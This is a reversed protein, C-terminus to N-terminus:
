FQAEEVKVGDEWTQIMLKTYTASGADSDNFKYFGTADVSAKRTHSNTEKTGDPKTEVIEYSIKYYCDYFGFTSLKVNRNDCCPCRIFKMIDLLNFTGFRLRHYGRYRFPRTECYPSTCKVELTLGRCVARWNPLKEDSFSEKKMSSMDTTIIGGGGGRLRCVLHVTSGDQINYHALDYSDELQKGAFVIRQQEVPVGEVVATLKKFELVTSTLPTRISVTKGTLTKLLIEPHKGDVTLKINSLGAEISDGPTIVDVESSM